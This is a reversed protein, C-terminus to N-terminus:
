SMAVHGLVGATAAILLLGVFFWVIASHSLSELAQTRKRSM